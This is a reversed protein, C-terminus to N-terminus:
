LNTARSNVTVSGNATSRGGRHDSQQREFPSILLSTDLAPASHTLAGVSLADVGSAAIDAVTELSITGSAELRCGSGSADRQEIVSRMVDISMNDLMIWDVQCDMAEYAEALTTVEVEVALHQGTAAMGDRVSQVAPRVGGAAALHNEKLLVMANLDLRHNTGGGCTVAYKDLARLGPATKRTDLLKVNHNGIAGVFASTLTAIGSMRQVFNLAAREGTIISRAPGSIWAMVQGPRVEDGDVVAARVTVSTDVADYVGEVLALGAVRGAQKAIMAAEVRVGAPVSWQTTVDSEAHDEDLAARVAARITEIALDM